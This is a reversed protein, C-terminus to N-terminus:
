KKTSFFSKQKTIKKNAPEKQDTKYPIFENENSAVNIFATLADLIKHFNKKHRELSYKRTFTKNYIDCVFDM